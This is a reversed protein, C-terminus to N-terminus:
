LRSRPERRPANDPRPPVRGVPLVRALCLKLYVPDGGQARRIVVSVIEAAHEAFQAM